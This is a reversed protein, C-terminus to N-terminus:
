PLKYFAGSAGHGTGHGADGGSLRCATGLCHRRRAVRRYIARALPMIGPVAGAWYVPRAWWIARSIERLADAGGLVRGGPQVLLMERLSPAERLGVREPVWPAQLPAFKFGRRRLTRYGRAVGSRCFACEGDYLIWGAM